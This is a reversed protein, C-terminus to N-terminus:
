LETQPLDSFVHSVGCKVVRTPMATPLATFDALACDLSRPFVDLRRCLRAWKDGSVILLTSAAEADEAWRAAEHARSRTLFCLHM